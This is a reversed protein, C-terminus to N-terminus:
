DTLKDYSKDETGKESNQSYLFSCSYLKFNVFHNIQSLFCVSMDAGPPTSIVLGIQHGGTTYIVHIKYITYLDYINHRM